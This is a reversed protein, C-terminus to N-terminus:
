GNQVAVGTAPLALARLASSEFNEVFFVGDRTSILGLVDLENIDSQIRKKTDRLRASLDALTLAMGGNVIAGSADAEGALAILQIFRWKASLSLRLIKPDDLIETYVKVWPMSAAM